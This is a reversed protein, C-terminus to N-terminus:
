IGKKLTNGKQGDDDGSPCFFTVRQSRLTETTSSKKEQVCGCLWSGCFQPVVSFRDHIFAIVLYFPNIRLSQGCHVLVGKGLIEVSLGFPEAGRLNGDAFLSEAYPLGVVPLLVQAVGFPHRQAEQGQTEFPPLIHPEDQVVMRFPKECLQTDLSYAPNGDRKKVEATAL